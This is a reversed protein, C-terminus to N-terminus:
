PPHLVSIRVPAVPTCYSHHSVRGVKDNSSQDTANLSRTCRTVFESKNYRKAYVACELGNSGKKRLLVLKPWRVNSYRSRKEKASCGWNPGQGVEM